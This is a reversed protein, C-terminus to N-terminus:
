IPVAHLLYLMDRYNIEIHSNLLLRWGIILMIVVYWTTLLLVGYIMELLITYVTESEDRSILACQMITNM